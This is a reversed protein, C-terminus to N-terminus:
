EKLRLTFTEQAIQAFTASLTSADGSFARDNSGACQRLLDVAATDTVNVAVTYLQVGYTTRIATCWNLMRQDLAARDPVAGATANCGPAGSQSCGWYGPFDQAQANAGDTILIMVKQAQTADFAKPVGHGFFTAWDQRPSLARLGWRLGVDAHTGGPVPSMRDITQLVQARSGSLGLMPMPCNINPGVIPDHQTWNTANVWGTCQAGGANNWVIENPDLVCGNATTSNLNSQCGGTYCTGSTFNFFSNRTGNV